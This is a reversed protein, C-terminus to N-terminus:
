VQYIDRGHRHPPVCIGTDTTPPLVVGATRLSEWVRQPSHEHLLHGADPWWETHHLALPVGDVVRDCGPPLLLPDREGRLVVIRTGRAAVRRLLERAMMAQKHDDDDKGPKETFASMQALIRDLYNPAQAATHHRKMVLDDTPKQLDLWLAWQWLVRSRCLWELAPRSCVERLAGLLTLAARGLPSLSGITLVPAILVLFAVPSDVHCAARLAPMCGMSHGVFVYGRGSRPMLSPAPSWPPLDFATMSAVGANSPVTKALPEWSAASLGLGHWCLVHYHERQRNMQTEIDEDPSPLTHITWGTHTAQKRHPPGPPRRRRCGMIWVVLLVSITLVVVVVVVTKERM